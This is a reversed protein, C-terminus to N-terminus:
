NIAEGKSDEPRYWDPAPGSIAEIAPVFSRDLEAVLAALNDVIQRWREPGGIPYQSGIIGGRTVPLILTVKFGVGNVLGQVRFMAIIRKSWTGVDLNLEATLNGATRRRLTFTGSEGRCDYGLPTFARLLEPKKPGSAVGVPAAAEHTPPLDHPLGAREVVENMRARYDRVVARLAEAIEPAAADFSKQLPTSQPQISAAILPVQRTKRVKGCAALVTAVADPPAPLKKAAPDAEIMRMAALYRERGNVWWSDKVSVGPSTPHGAGIDVGARALAGLAQADPAMTMQPGQSFGPASFQLTISHFPFSRPVGRAIERLIDFDLPEVTGSQTVNTIFRQTSRIGAVADGARALRELQPWRKLVRDISSVRKIGTLAAVANIEATVPPDSLIVRVAPEGLGAAIFGQHVREIMDVLPERRSAAFITFIAMLM